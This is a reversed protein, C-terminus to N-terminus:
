SKVFKVYDKASDREIEIMEEFTGITIYINLELGGNELLLHCRDMIATAVAQPDFISVDSGPEGEGTLFEIIDSQRDQYIESLGVLMGVEYHDHSKEKPNWILLSFDVMDNVENIQVRFHVGEKVKVKRIVVNTIFKGEDSLMESQEPIKM